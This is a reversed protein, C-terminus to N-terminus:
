CSGPTSGAAAIGLDKYVARTLRRKRAWDHNRALMVSSVFAVAVGSDLDAFVFSSHAGTQGVVRTGPPLGFPLADVCCGLGWRVDVGLYVPDALGQRVVSTVRQRLGDAILNLGRWGAVCEVPRAMDRAPGRTGLGPWRRDLLVPNDLGARRPDRDASFSWSEALEPQRTPDCRLYTHRMDLPAMVARQIVDEYPEGTWRQILEALILWNALATYVVRDEPRGILPERCIAAVAEGWDATFLRDDNTDHLGDDTWHLGLARYPVTHTLLHAITVTSKGAMAFEPITEAVNAHEDIGLEAMVRLLGVVVVPKACCLWLVGTRTTMPGTSDRDGVASDLLPEGYRSVYVQSGTRENVFDPGALVAM